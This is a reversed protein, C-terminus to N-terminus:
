TIFVVPHPTSLGASLSESALRRVVCAILVTASAGMELAQAMQIPHVVIDKMVIPPPTKSRAKFHAQQSWRPPHQLLPYFANFILAPGFCFM